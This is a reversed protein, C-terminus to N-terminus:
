VEETIEVTNLVQIEKDGININNTANNVEFETVSDVGQITYFISLLKNYDVVNLKFVSDKIYETAKTIYEQKVVELEVNLALKLTANINILVETPATVTLVGSLIPRVAEIYEKIEQIKSEIPARKDTTIPIVQVTGKGNWLPFIKADEIGSVEKCWQRYHEKNGSTAKTKYSELLRALLSQDTETNSGGKLEETNNISIVGTISIPLNNITNSKVNYKNGINEAVIDVELTTDETFILEEKTLYNLGTSTAVLTDKPIITGELAQISVKGEAKTGQKRFIGKESAKEELDETSLNKLFMNNYLNNLLVYAKELELSVPSVIVDTFSGEITNVTNIGNLIDNKIEEYQKM